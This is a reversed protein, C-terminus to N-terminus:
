TKKGLLKEFHKCCIEHRTESLVIKAEHAKKKSSQDWAGYKAECFYYLSGVLLAITYGIAFIQDLLNALLRWGNTDIKSELEEEEETKEAAESQKEAVKEEMNRKMFLKELGMKEKGDNTAGNKDYGDPPGVKATKEESPMRELFLWDMLRSQIVYLLFKPVPKSEPYYYLVAAGVSVVVTLSVMIIMFVVLSGIIPFDESTSPPLIDSLVLLQVVQSLLLTVSLSIKEGSEVPLLMPFISLIELLICPVLIVTVYFKSQRQFRFEYVILDYDFLGTYNKFTRNSFAFTVPELLEFQGGQKFETLDMQGFTDYNTDAGM